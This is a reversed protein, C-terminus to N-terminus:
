SLRANVFESRIYAPDYNFNELSDIRQANAKMLGYQGLLSERLKKAGKGVILPASFHALQYSVALLASPGLLDLSIDMPICEAKANAENTFIAKKGQYIAVRKSIHTSSTDVRAGSDLRRLFACRNPYEYVFSWPDNNLTDLLELAIPESLSDLDLDQLTLALSDDFFSRLVDLETSQDSESNIVQRSLLLHSLAFSFIKNKTTSM